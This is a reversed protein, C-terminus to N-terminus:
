KFGITLPIGGACAAPERRRNEPSNSGPYDLRPRLQNKWDSWLRAYAAGAGGTPRNMRAECHPRCGSLTIVLRRRHRPLTFGPVRMLKRTPSRHGTLVDASGTSPGFRYIGPTQPSAGLM